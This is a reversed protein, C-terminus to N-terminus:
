EVVQTRNLDIFIDRIQLICDGAEHLRIFANGGAEPLVRCRFMKGSNGYIRISDGVFKRDIALHQNGGGVIEREDLLARRGSVLRAWRMEVARFLELSLLM